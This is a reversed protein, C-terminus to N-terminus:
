SRNCWTLLLELDALRRFLPAALQRRAQLFSVPIARNPRAKKRATVPAFHGPSTEKTASETPTLSRHEREYM